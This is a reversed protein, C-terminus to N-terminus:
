ESCSYSRGGICWYSLGHNDSDTSAAHMCAHQSAHMQVIAVYSYSVTIFRMGAAIIRVAPSICLLM